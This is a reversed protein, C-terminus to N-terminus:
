LGIGESEVDVMAEEGEEQGRARAPRARGRAHDLMWSVARALRERGDATPQSKLQVHLVRKAM